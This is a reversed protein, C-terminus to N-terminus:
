GVAGWLSWVGVAAILSGTARVLARGRAGDRLRGIGVGAILLAGTTAVLGLGFLALSAGAPAQAAHAHGQSVALLAVLGTALRLPPRLEALVAIGLAVVLLALVPEIGPLWVGGLALWAGVVMFAPFTLCLSCLGQRGFRAALIGVALMALLHDAGTVPHALGGWMGGHVDHGAHGLAASPTSAIVAVAPGLTHVLCM